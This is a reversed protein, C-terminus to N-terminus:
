AREYRWELLAERLFAKMSAWSRRHAATDYVIGREPMNAGKFVFAHKAHGYAHLQWDAGAATFEAAALVDPRRHIVAADSL